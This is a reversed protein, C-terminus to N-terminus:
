SPEAREPGAAHLFFKYFYHRALSLRYERTLNEEEFLPQTQSGLEEELIPLVAQLTEASLPRGVLFRESARARVFGTALGGFLATFASM